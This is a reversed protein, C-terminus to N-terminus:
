LPSKPDFCVTDFSPAMDNQRFRGLSGGQQKSPCDSHDKAYKAFLVSDKGIKRKWTELKKKADESQDKLLIHSAEAYVQRGSWYLILYFISLFLVAVTVPSVPLSRDGIQINRVYWPKALLRANKMTDEDMEDDGVVVAAVSIAGVLLSLFARLTPHFTFM